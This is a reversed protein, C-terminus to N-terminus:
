VVYQNTVLKTLIKLYSLRDKMIMLDMKSM